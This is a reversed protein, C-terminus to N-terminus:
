RRLILLSDTWSQACTLGSPFTVENTRGEEHVYRLVDEEMTDRNPFSLFLGEPRRFLRSYNAIAEGETPTYIVPMVERIHDQLLAFYLVTNQDRLSTLFTNRALDDSRSSYQQWARKKQEELTHM